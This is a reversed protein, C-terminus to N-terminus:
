KKIYILCNIRRRAPDAVSISFYHRPQLISHFITRSRGGASLLVAAAGATLAGRPYYVQECFRARTDLFAVSCVALRYDFPGAILYCFQSPHILLSSDFHAASAPNM